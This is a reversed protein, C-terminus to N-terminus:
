CTVKGKCVLEDMKIQLERAYEINDSKVAALWERKIKRLQDCTVCDSM